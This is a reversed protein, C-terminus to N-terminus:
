CFVKSLEKFEKKQKYSKYLFAAMMAVCFLVVILVAGVAIIIYAWYPVSRGSAFNSLTIDDTTPSHTTSTM